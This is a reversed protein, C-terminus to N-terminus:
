CSAFLETNGVSVNVNHSTRVCSCETARRRNVVRNETVRCVTVRNATDSNETVRSATDSNQTVRNATDSNETVRNATGSKRHRPESAVIKLSATGASRHRSM